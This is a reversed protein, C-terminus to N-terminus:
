FALRMGLFVNVQSGGEIQSSLDELVMQENIYHHGFAMQRFDGHDKNRGFNQAFEGHAMLGFTKSFDMKLGVGIGASM